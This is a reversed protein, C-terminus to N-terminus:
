ERIIPYINWTTYHLKRFCKIIRILLFSKIYLTLMRIVSTETYYSKICGTKFHLCLIVHSTAISLMAVHVNYLDYSQSTNHTISVHSQAYWIVNLKLWPQKHETHSERRRNDITRIVTGRFMSMLIAISTTKHRWQM